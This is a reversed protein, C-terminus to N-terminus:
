KHLINHNPNEEFPKEQYFPLCMPEEQSVDCMFGGRDM